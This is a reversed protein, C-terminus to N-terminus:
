DDEADVDTYAGPEDVRREPARDGDEQEVDTYEGERDPNQERSM